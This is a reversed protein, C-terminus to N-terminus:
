PAPPPWVSSWSRQQETHGSVAPPLEGAVVDAITTGEMIARLSARVAVWVDRLHTAPAGYDVAEPRHGHILALPGDVVRVVDAVSIEAAPRALRHGGEPGRRSVVLGGRRLEALIADLFTRPIDQAAAVEDAKIACGPEAAALVCVARVAYDAKASIQM